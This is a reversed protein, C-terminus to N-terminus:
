QGKNHVSGLGDGLDNGAHHQPHTQNIRFTPLPIPLNYAAKVPRFSFARDGIVVLATPQKAIVDRM